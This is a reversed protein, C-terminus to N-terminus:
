NRDDNSLSHPFISDWPKIHLKEYKLYQSLQFVFDKPSQHPSPGHPALKPDTTYLVFDLHKARGAATWPRAGNGSSSGRESAVLEWATGM